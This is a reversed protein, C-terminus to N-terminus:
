PRWSGGSGNRPWGRARRGTGNERGTCCTSDRPVIAAISSTSGSSKRGPWRWLPRDGPLTEQQADPFDSLLAFLLNNDRNALFRWELQEVLDRLGRESSLMCPVAVLTRHEPPIGRSFDLRPMARPPVILTCLWNVMSVAFQSATGALLVLVVLNAWPAAIRGGELRWGLAAAAAVTLLWVGLIGGLYCRLPAAAALRALASRRTRRCSAKSESETLGQDVLYESTTIM